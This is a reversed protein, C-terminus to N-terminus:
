GRQIIPVIARENEGVYVQRPRYIRNEKFNVERWNAIWGPLRGMAFFVTFMNTPIGIARMILGSYFDVNPYLNREVFYDDKLAAQELEMAIDLLPDTHDLRKFLRDCAEKLIRARPDYNKYVRHGFGMLRVPNKKDKANKSAIRSVSVM